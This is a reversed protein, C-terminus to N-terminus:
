SIRSNQPLRPRVPFSGESTFRDAYIKLVGDNKNAITQSIPPCDTPPFLRPVVPSPDRVINELLVSPLFCSLEYFEGAIEVKLPDEKMEGDESLM